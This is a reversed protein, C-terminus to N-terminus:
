KYEDVLLQASPHGSDVAKQFWTLASTKNRKVGNGELFCHGLNVMAKIDGNEAAEQYLSAAKELNEEVGRGYDYLVALNAMASVNGKEIAKKYWKAASSCNEETGLGDSFSMGLLFMADANGNKAAEQFWYLSKKYDRKGLYGKFYYLGLSYKLEDSGALAARSYWKEADAENDESAAYNGLKWMADASGKKAAKQYWNIAGAVDEIGGVGNALCEGLQYMAYPESREASYKLWSMGEKEDVELGVGNLYFVGLNAMALANGNEAAKKYFYAAKEFDQELVLGTLHCYGIAQMASSDELDAAAFIMANVLNTLTNSKLKSHELKFFIDSVYKSLHMAQQEDLYTNELINSSIYYEPFNQALRKLFLVTQNPDYGWAVDMIESIPLITKCYNVVLWEGFVDPQVPLLIDNTVRDMLHPTDTFNAAQERVINSPLAILKKEALKTYSVGKTITAIVVLRLALNDDRWIESLESSLRKAYHRNLAGEFLKELTSSEIESDNAIAQAYFYAFLPRGLDDFENFKEITSEKDKDPICLGDEEAVRRIIEYTADYHLASLELAGDEFKISEILYVELRSSRKDVGLYLKKFWESYMESFMNESMELANREGGLAGQTSRLGGTDWRQREVLLVRINESFENKRLFEFFRAVEQERGVVYDFVFLHPKDPQWEGSYQHFKDLDNSEVFGANWGEDIAYEALDLALRSKGQGAVGAIQYWLIPYDCELFKKLKDQESKRGFIDFKKTGFYNINRKYVPPLELQIQYDPIPNTTLDINESKAVLEIASEVAGLNLHSPVKKAYNFFDLFFTDFNKEHYYEHVHASFCFAIILNIDGAGQKYVSELTGWKTPIYEEVNDRFIKQASKTKEYEYIYEWFIKGGWPKKPELGEREPHSLQDAINEIAIRYSPDISDWFDDFIFEDLM